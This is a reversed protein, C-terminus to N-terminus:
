ISRGFHGYWADELKEVHELVMSEIRALDRMRFGDNGIMRVPRLRFKAECGDKEVHVHPPAHDQAYFHFRFGAERHVTPM